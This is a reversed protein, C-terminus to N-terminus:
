GRPTADAGPREASRGVASRPGTGQEGSVRVPICSWHADLYQKVESAGAVGQRSAYDAVDRATYGMTESAAAPSVHQTVELERRM